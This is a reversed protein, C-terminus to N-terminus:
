TTSENTTIKDETEKYTYSANEIDIAEVYKIGTEIQEIYLDSDSYNRYLKVGDNRTLYLEKIVTM